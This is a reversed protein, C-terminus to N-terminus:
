IENKKEQTSTHIIELVQPRIGKALASAKLADLFDLPDKGLSKVEAIFDSLDQQDEIKEVIEKETAWKNQSTDLEYSTVEGSRLLLGVRPKYDREDTRRPVMVGNNWINCRGPAYFGKHNDGFVAADYEKLRREWKPVALDRPANLYSCDSTWCYAHIVALSKSKREGKATYDKVDSGWPFPVLDWEAIRNTHRLGVGMLPDIRGAKVLTWYATKNIDQRNHFELDHQGPITITNEPLMDFAANVVVPPPNSKDFLDGALIFPCKHKDCLDCVQELAHSLVKLWDTEARAVPTKNTLHLDSGLVAIVKDKVRM